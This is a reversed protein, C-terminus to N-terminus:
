DSCSVQTPTLKMAGWLHHLEMWLHHIKVLVDAMLVTRLAALHLSCLSHVKHQSHAAVTFTISCGIAAGACSTMAEPEVATVTLPNQTTMVSVAASPQGQPQLTM